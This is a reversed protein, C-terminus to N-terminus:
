ILEYKVKIFEFFDHNNLQVTRNGNRIFFDNKLFVLQKSPQIKIMCIDFNNICHFTIKCNRVANKGLGDSIKSTLYLEYGDRDKKQKNATIYDHLSLDILSKDNKVGILLTGTIPSNQFAAISRLINYSLDDKEITNTIYNYAASAKFEVNDTEGKAILEWVIDEISQTLSDYDNWLIPNVSLDDKNLLKYTISFTDLRKKNIAIGEYSDECAIWTRNLRSCVTPITGVNSFLTLVLDNEKSGVEILRTAVIEPLNYNSFEDKEYGFIIDDWITSINKYEDNNTFYHKLQPLRNESFYILEENKFFDLKEKSFKWYKGEPLKFGNWVYDNNLKHNIILSVLKYRGKNDNFPFLNNIEDVSRKIKNNFYNQNGKKYFVFSLHKESFSSIHLHKRPIIFETLFNENGFVKNLLTQFNINILPDSFLALNGTPKLVRKTQQFIKYMNEYYLEESNEQKDFSTSTNFPPDLYIFDISDKDLRELFFLQESLILTNFNLTM